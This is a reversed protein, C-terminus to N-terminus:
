IKSSLGQQRKECVPLLPYKQQLKIFDDMTRWTPEQSQINSLLDPIATKPLTPIWYNVDERVLVQCGKDFHQRTDARWSQLDIRSADTTSHAIQVRALSISLQAIGYFFGESEFSNPYKEVLSLVQEWESIADQFRSQFHLLRASAITSRVHLWQDSIDPSSIEHFQQKLWEVCSSAQDYKGEAIDVDVLSVKLRKLAKAFTGQIKNSISDIEIEIKSRADVWYGEACLLDSLRTIIQFRNPDPISKLDDQLYEPQLFIYCSALYSRASELRGRSQYIKSVTSWKKFSVSLEMPSWPTEESPEWKNLESIENEAKEYAELQILNELHSIMLLRSLARLRPNTPGPYPAGKQYDLIIQESSHYAGDLRAFISRRLAISAQVHDPIDDGLMEIAEDLAQRNYQSSGLRAKAVLVEALEIITSRPLEWAKSQKALHDIVPSLIKGHRQFSYSSDTAM